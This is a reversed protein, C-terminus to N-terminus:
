NIEIEIGEFDLNDDSDASDSDFLTGAMWDRTEQARDLPNM